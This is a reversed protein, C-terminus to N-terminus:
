SKSTRLLVLTSCVIGLLGFLATFLGTLAPTGPHGRLLQHRLDYSSSQALLAGLAALAIASLLALIRASTLTRLKFAARLLFAALTLTLLVIFLFFLIQTSTQAAPYRLVRSVSPLLVSVYVLLIAGLFFPQAAAFLLISRKM